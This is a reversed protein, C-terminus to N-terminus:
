VLDGDTFSSLQSLDIGRRVDSMTLGSWWAFDRATAPGHSRFYIATLRELAEDRSLPSTQKTRADLLAYTSQTGRRPGSCLVGELEAHLTLLALRIGTVALGTRALAAGLEARTLCGQSSLAREFARAARTRLAADLERARYAHGLARQVREATLSLMWRIDDRTVLHWTPRLVHTRLIAGSDLARDLDSATAPESRLAVAWMAATYDQAQIAGCWAVVAAPTGSTAPDIRLNALREIATRRNM